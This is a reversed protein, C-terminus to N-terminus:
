QLFTEAVHQDLGHRCRTGNDRGVDASISLGHNVALVTQEYGRGIRTQQRGRHTRHELTGIASRRPSAGSPPTGGLPELSRPHQRLVFREVVIQQSPGTVAIHPM